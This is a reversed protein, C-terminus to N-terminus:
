RLSAALERIARRISDDDPGELALLALTLLRRIRDRDLRRAM